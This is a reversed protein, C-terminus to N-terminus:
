SGMRQALSRVLSRLTSADIPKEFVLPKSRALFDKARPTFVGGTLFLMRRLLEPREDALAAHVDIGDAGPMMLDCVVVDFHTGLRVLELAEEGSSAEVVHHQPEL